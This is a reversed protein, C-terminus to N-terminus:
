FYRQVREPTFENLQGWHCSFPIGTADLANWIARYIALVSDNRISPLEIFCNMDFQNMGLLATTKPVFRLAVCGLLFHGNHVEAALVQFVTALADKMRKHDVVIETSAGHGRPLSTPGFVQGPFLVSEAPSARSELQSSINDRVIALTLQGVFPG